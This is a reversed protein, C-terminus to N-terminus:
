SLEAKTKLGPAFTAITASRRGDLELAFDTKM